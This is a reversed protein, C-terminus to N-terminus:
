LSSRRIDQLENQVGQMKNKRESKRERERERSLSCSSYGLTSHSHEIFIRDAGHFNLVDRSTSFYLYDFDFKIKLNCM